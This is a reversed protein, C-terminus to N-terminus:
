VVAVPGRGLAEINVLIIVQGPYARLLYRIKTFDVHGVAIAPRSQSM